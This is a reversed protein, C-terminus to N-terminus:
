PIGAMSPRDRRPGTRQASGPVSLHRVPRTAPRGPRAAPPM